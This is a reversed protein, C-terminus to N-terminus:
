GTNNGDAAEKTETQAKIAEIIPELKTIDYGVSLLHINRVLKGVTEHATGLDVHQSVPVAAAEPVAGLAVPQLAPKQELEKIAAEPVLELCVVFSGLKPKLVDYHRRVPELGEKEYWGKEQRFEVIIDPQAMRSNDAIVVLENSRDGTYVALDPWLKGRGFEGVIDSMEYWKREPSPNRAQWRSENYDFDSIFATFLNLSTSHGIINPVLFSYMLSHTFSIKNIEEVTDPVREERGEMEEMHSSPDKDLDSPPVHYVKGTSLLKLLSVTAWCQYGQHYYKNFGDEVVRAATQEFAALDKKGKLLDFLPESLVRMLGDNPDLLFWRIDPEMDISELKLSDMVVRSVEGWKKSLVYSKELLAPFNDKIFGLRVKDFLRYFEPRVDSSICVINTGIEISSNNNIYNKLEDYAKQWNGSM